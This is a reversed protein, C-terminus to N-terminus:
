LFTQRVVPVTRLLFEHGHFAVSNGGLLCTLLLLCWTFRHIPNFINQGQPLLCISLGETFHSVLGLFDEKLHASVDAPPSLVMRSQNEKSYKQSQM